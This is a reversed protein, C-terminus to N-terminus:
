RGVAFRALSACDFAHRTVDFDILVQEARCYCVGLSCLLIVSEVFFPYKNSYGKKKQPRGCSVQSLESLKLVNELFISGPLSGFM